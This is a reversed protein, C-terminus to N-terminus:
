SKITHLLSTLREVIGDLLTSYKAQVWVRILAETGSPRVVVQGDNGLLAQETAIAEQILKNQLVEKGGVGDKLYVSAMKEPWLNLSNEIDVLDAGGTVVKTALWAGMYLGDGSPLHSLDILHGTFEGGRGFGTGRQQTLEMLKATVYSDGNDCEHFEVGLAQVSERLGANTYITGVIGKQGEALQHMWHNGNIIGGNANIGMVRDGDGDSAFAGLFNSQQILAPNQKLFETVGELHAAGCGQNIYEGQGSCAFTIVRAGLAEYLRPAIQYAAGNAGDVAVIKSSLLEAGGLVEVVHGLYEDALEPRVWRKSKQISQGHTEHRASASYRRELEDLRSRAPKVGGPDFPKFGNDDNPNHSATIAVAAAGYRQAIWAIVPTPAIGVDWVDAGALLAGRCVAEHLAPGSDRTDRGVIVVPLQDNQETILRVYQHALWEFTLPNVGPENNDNALGRYGDTGFLIEAM